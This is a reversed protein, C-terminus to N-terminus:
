VGSNSSQVRYRVQKWSADLICYSWCQNEDSVQCHVTNASDWLNSDQTGVNLVM